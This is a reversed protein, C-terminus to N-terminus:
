GPGWPRGHPDSENLSCYQAYPELGIVDLGRARMAATKAGAGCGVDLVRAGPFERAIADISRRAGADFRLATEATEGGGWYHAPYYRGIAQPSPRPNLYVLGCGPCRVLRFEGPGFIDLDRAKFLEVARDVECIPCDTAELEM